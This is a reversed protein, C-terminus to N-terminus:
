WSWALMLGYRDPGVAPALVPRQRDWTKLYPYDDHYRSVAYGTVMGIAAGMVVDSFWHAEVDLRALGTIIALAYAPIGAALGFRDHLVAATCFAV